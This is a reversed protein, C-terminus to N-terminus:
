ERFVCSPLEPDDNTVLADAISEPRAEAFYLKQGPIYKDEYRRRVKEASGFLPPDRRVARDVTERWDVKVFVRYEWYRVLEPRLLFIGDVLLIDRCAAMLEPALSPEDSRHDFVAVRYKRSGEPGLPSLLQSRLLEYDFSDRYFAEASDGYRALRERRPRHFGDVSARIVRRGTVEISMALERALTTKGAADPGDIAVRIPHERRLAVIRDRLGEVVFERM